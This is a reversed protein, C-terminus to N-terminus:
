QRAFVQTFSVDDFLAAGAGDVDKSVLKAEARVAGPPAIIEEAVPTWESGQVSLIVASTLVRRHEDVFRLRIQGTAEHTKIWGCLKYAGGGIVPAHQWANEGCDLRASKSGAHAGVDDVTLSGVVTWATLDDEEFGGNGLLNQPAPAPSFQHTVTVGLSPNLWTGGACVEHKIAKVMWTVQGYHPGADTYTTEDIPEATLLQYLGEPSSARWVQYGVIDVDESLQWSLVVAGTDDAVALPEKPPIVQFLRITPDGIHQMWVQGWTSGAVKTAYTAIQRQDNISTRMMDGLDFGFGMRHYVYRVTYVDWTFSLTANDEGLRAAMANINWWKGWHSQMGTWIVAKGGTGVLPVGSGKFYFLYPGNTASYAADADPPQTMDWPLQARTIYEMNEAGVVGSLTNEFNGQIKSFGERYIARRGVRFDPTATKYRHVKGLYMRLAGYEDDIRPAADVRGWGLEFAPVTSQQFDLQDFKGDRPKNVMDGTVNQFGENDLQDAWTNDIDAYYCDAGSAFMNGHGDPAWGWVGSRPCPVRGLLIVNKLEGPHEKYIAIIQDRIGQHLNEGGCFDHGRPTQIEHVYWGDAVLDAKFQAYEAPLTEPVDDAVVIAVRGKPATRDVRIGCLIYGCTRYQPGVTGDRVSFRYEYLRGVEVAEDTWTSVGGPVTAIVAGWDAVQPDKRHVDFGDAYDKLIAITITSPDESVTAQLPVVCASWERNYSPAFLSLLLASAIM